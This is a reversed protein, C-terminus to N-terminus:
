YVPDANSLAWEEGFKEEHAAEYASFFDQESCPALKQHLEERLDDDMLNVAADFCVKAGSRNIVVSKNYEDWYLACVFM